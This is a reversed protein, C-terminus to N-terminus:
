LGEQAVANGTSSAGGHCVSLQGPVAKCIDDACGFAAGVPAILDFQSKPLKADLEVGRDVGYWRNGFKEILRFGLSFRGVFDDIWDIACIVDHRVNGFFQLVM